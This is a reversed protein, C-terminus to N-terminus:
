TRLPPNFDAELDAELDGLIQSGLNVSDDEGLKIFNSKNDIKHASM